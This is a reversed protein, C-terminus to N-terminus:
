ERGGIGMVVLYICGNFKEADGLEFCLKDTDQRLNARTRGGFTLIGRVNVEAMTAVRSM